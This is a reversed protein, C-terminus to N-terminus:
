FGPPHKYANAIKDLQGSVNLLEMDHWRREVVQVGIPLGEKTYGMPMVVVPNGTLNFISTYAMNAVWYKLPKDDGRVPLCHKLIFSILGSHLELVGGVVRMGGKTFIALPVFLLGLLTNPLAWLYRLFKM